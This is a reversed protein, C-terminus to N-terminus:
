SKTKFSQDSNLVKDMRDMIKDKAANRLRIEWIQNNLQSFRDDDHREHYEIKELVARELKEVRNHILERLASFQRSFWWALSWTAGVITALIAPALWLENM